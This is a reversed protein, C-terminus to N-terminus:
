DPLFFTSFGNQKEAFTTRALTKAASHRLRCARLVAGTCLLPGRNEPACGPNAWPGKNGFGGPGRCIFRNPSYLFLFGSPSQVVELCGQLSMWLGEPDESSSRLSGSVTKQPRRSWQSNAKYLNIGWISKDTPTRATKTIHHRPGSRSFELIGRALKTCLRPVEHMNGEGNQPSFM